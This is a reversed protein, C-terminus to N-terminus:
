DFYIDSSLSFSLVFSRFFSFFIVTTNLISSFQGNKEMTAFIKRENKDWRPDQEASTGRFM